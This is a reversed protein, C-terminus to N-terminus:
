RKKNPPLHRLDVVISPNESLMAHAFWYKVESLTPFAKEIM